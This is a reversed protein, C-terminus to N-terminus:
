LKECYMLDVYPPVNFFQSGAPAEDRRTASGGTAGLAFNQGTYGSLASASPATNTFPPRGTPTAGIIARGNAAAYQTWNDPCASLRFAMVAGPPFASSKPIPLSRFTIYDDFYNAGPAENHGLFSFTRDDDCNETDAGPTDNCALDPNNATHDNMRFGGQYDKGVSVIVFDVNNPHGTIIVLPNGLSHTAPPVPQVTESETVAYIFRTKWGDVAYEVPLSLSKVPLMGIRVNGVSVTGSRVGATCNAHAVGYNTNANTEDAPDADTSDLMRNAPCPLSGNYAAYRKLADSVKEMRQKTTVVETDTKLSLLSDAFFAMLVGAVFLVLTLEILTLGAQRVGPSSTKQL